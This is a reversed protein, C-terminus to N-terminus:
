LAREKLLILPKNNDIINLEIPLVDCLYRNNENYLFNNLTEIKFVVPIFSGWNQTVSEM